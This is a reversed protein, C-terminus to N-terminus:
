DTFKIKPNRIPLSTDTQITSNCEELSSAVSRIELTLEGVTKKVVEDNQNTQLRLSNVSADTESTYANM